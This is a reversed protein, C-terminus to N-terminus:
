GYARLSVYGLIVEVVAAVVGGWSLVPAAFLKAGALGCLIAAIAGRLVDVAVQHRNSHM